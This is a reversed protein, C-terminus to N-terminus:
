LYEFTKLLRYSFGKYILFLYMSELQMKIQM